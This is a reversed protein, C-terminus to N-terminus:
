VLSSTTSASSSAGSPSLSPPSFRSTVIRIDSRRPKVASPRAAPPWRPPRGASGNGRPWPPLSGAAVASGDILDDPVGDQHKKTCRHSHLIIGLARDEARQPHLLRHRPHILLIALPSARSRSPFRAACRPPPPRCCQITLREFYPTTPRVMLVVARISLKVTPPWTM